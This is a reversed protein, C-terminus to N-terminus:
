PAARTLAALKAGAAPDAWLRARRDPSVAIDLHLAAGGLLGAYPEGWEVLLVADDRREDLGLDAVEGPGGLRYLDVHLIPVRARHEHVLAFSPSQVPEAHPVGLARCVARAFFTKGAGLPGSLLVLDGPALVAAVARALRITARRTPLAIVLSNAPHVTNM